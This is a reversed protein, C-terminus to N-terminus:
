WCIIQLAKELVLVLSGQFIRLLCGVAPSSTLPEIAKSLSNRLLYFSIRVKVVQIPTVINSGFLSPLARSQGKPYLQTKHQCSLSHDQLHSCCGNCPIFCKTLPHTIPTHCVWLWLNYRHITRPVVWLM